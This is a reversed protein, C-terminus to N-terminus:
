RRNVRIYAILFIVGAGVIGGILFCLFAIGGTYSNSYAPSAFFPKTRVFNSCIPSFTTTMASPSTTVLVCNTSYMTGGQCFDFAQCSDEGTWEYCTKACEELTLNTIPKVSSGVSRKNPFKNFETSFKRYYHGCNVDKQQIAERSKSSPYHVVHLKCTGATQCHDFSLCSFSTEKLCARACDEVKPKDKLVKSASTSLVIGPSRVFNDAYKRTVLICTNDEIMDSDSLEEGYKTHLVCSSDMLCYSATECNDFDLCLKQCEDFQLKGMNKVEKGLDDKLRFGARYAIMRPNLERGMREFIRTDEGPESVQISSATLVVEEEQGKVPISLKMTGIEVEERLASVMEEKSRLYTDNNFRMWLTCEESDVITAATEKKTGYYCMKGCMSFGWCNEEKELCAQACDSFESVGQTRTTKDIKKGRVGDLYDLELPPKGLVMLTVYIADRVDVLITPIRVSNLETNLQIKQLINAQISPVYETVKTLTAPDADFTITVYVYDDDNQYCRQVNFIWRKNRIKTSFDYINFTLQEVQKELRGMLWLQVQTLANRITGTNEVTEDFQLYSHSAYVKPITKSPDSSDLPYNEFQAEFIDVNLGRNTGETVYSFENNPYLITPDALYVAGAGRPLEFKPSYDKIRVIDCRGTDYSMNYLYGHTMDFIAGVPPLATPEADEPTEKSSNWNSYYYAVHNSDTDLAMMLTSYYSYLQSDDGSFDLVRFVAEADFRLSKGTLDPMDPGDALDGRKCFRTKPLQFPKLDKKIYPQFDMVEYQQRSLVKAEGTRGPGFVVRLPIELQLNEATTVNKTTFYYDVYSNDKCLRWYQANLGRVPDKADGMYAMSTKTKKKWADLGNKFMASPGVTKKDYDVDGKPHTWDSQDSRFMEPIDSINQLKCDRGRIEWAELSKTRYIYVFNKNSIHSEVRGKRIEMDYYELYYDTQSSDPITYEVTMMYSTAGKKEIDPFEKDAKRDSLDCKESWCLPLLSCALLFVWPKM